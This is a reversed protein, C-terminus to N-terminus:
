DIEFEHELTFATTRSFSQGDKVIEAAALSFKYIGSSLQGYYHGWDFILELNSNAPVMFDGDPLMRTPQVHEWRGNEDLRLIFFARQFRVGEASDNTLTFRGATDGLEHIETLTVPHIEEQVPAYNEPGIAFEMIVEYENDFSGTLSNFTVPEPAFSKRIRYTGTSLGNRFQWGWDFNLEIEARKELRLGIDLFFAGSNIWRWDSGEKRELIYHTGYLFEVDTENTLRFTAANQNINVPVVTLVPEGEKFGEFASAANAETLVAEFVMELMQHTKAHTFSQRLRYTGPVPPEEWSFLVELASHPAFTGNEHWNQITHETTEVQVWGDDALREIIFSGDYLLAEDMTNFMLFRGFSPMLESFEVHVPESAVAYEEHVDEPKERLAPEYQCAALLTLGLLIGTIKKM